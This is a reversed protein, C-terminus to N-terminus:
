CWLLIISVLQQELLPKKYCSVMFTYNKTTATGIVTNEYRSVVFTYNESTAIGITTNKMIQYGLPIIRVLQQELPRLKM